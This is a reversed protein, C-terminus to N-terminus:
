TTSLKEFFRQKNANVKEYTLLVDKVAAEELKLKKELLPSYKKMFDIDDQIRRNVTEINLIQNQVQRVRCSKCDLHWQLESIDQICM